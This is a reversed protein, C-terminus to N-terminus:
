GRGARTPPRSWRGPRRGAHRHPGAHGRDGRAWSTTAATAAGTRRRCRGASPRTRRWRGCAGASSRRSIHFWFKVLVQGDDALWREFENIQTTPRRWDKKSAGVEGRPGRARPRVLLPRLPGHARGRAPADPLALPLPLAARARVPPSGPWARFARPDLQETLRQIITGKGSADWGEFVVVTPIEAELLAYQLQRLREQLPPFVSRTTARPVASLTSTSPRRAGRLSRRAPRRLIASTTHM